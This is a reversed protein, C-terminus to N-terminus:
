LGLMQALDGKDAHLRIMHEIFPAWDERMRQRQDLQAAKEPQPLGALPLTKVIAMLSFEFGSAAAASMQQFIDASATQAWVEDQGIASLIQPEDLLGDLKWVSGASPVYAVFHFGIDEDDDISLFKRRRKRGKRRKRNQSPKAAQMDEKMSQDVILRDLRTSFSNHVARFHQHEDLQIGRDKASLLKTTKYFQALEPSLPLEPANMIINMMAVSGCSFKSIQNAFWPKTKQIPEGANVTVAIDQPEWRSLFVLGLLDVHSYNFLQDIEFVDDVRVNDLGWENLVISFVDPSNELEAWGKWTAASDAPKEDPVPQRGDHEGNLQDVVDEPSGTPTSFQKTNEIGQLSTADRGEANSNGNM